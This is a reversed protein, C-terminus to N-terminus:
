QPYTKWSYCPFLMMGTLATPQGNSATRSPMLTTDSILYLYLILCIHLSYFIVHLILSFCIYNKTVGLYNRLINVINYVILYLFLIISLYIVSTYVYIAVGQLGEGIHIDRNGM